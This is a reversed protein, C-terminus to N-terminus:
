KKVWFNLMKQVEGSQVEQDALEMKLKIQNFMLDMAGQHVQGTHSFISPIFSFDTSSLLYKQNRTPYYTCETSPQTYAQYQFKTTFM